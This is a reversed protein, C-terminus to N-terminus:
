HQRHCHSRIASSRSLGTAEQVDQEVQPVAVRPVASMHQLSLRAATGRHVVAAATMAVAAAAAAAIAVAVAVAEV